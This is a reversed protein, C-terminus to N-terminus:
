LRQMFPNYKREYDLTTSGEHGPYVRYNGPLDSLRKLSRQMDAFSGGPFDTRGCSGNFLTDGTFLVDEVKLTVSGSTRGAAHIILLWYTVFALIGVVATVIGAVAMGPNQKQKVLHIIGFVIALIATIINIGTCFLVLSILGLVMSAVAFGKGPEEKRNDAPRQNYNPPYPNGYQPNQNQNPPYPNGYQPNQNQNLQYPNRNDPYM